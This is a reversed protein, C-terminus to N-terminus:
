NARAETARATLRLPENGEAGPLGADALGLMSAVEALFARHERPAHDRWERLYDGLNRVKGADHRNLAYLAAWHEPAQEFRQLLLNAVVENDGRLYPNGSLAPLRSRLWAATTQGEPLQRHAEGLLHAAYRALVDAYGQWSPYPAEDSWRVAMKRLVYLGAAECLAEEFWQHSRRRPDGGHAAHNAMVHCLEHGFQYAYQAWARNRASLRIRHEGAPGREFLAVPADGGHTVVIPHDFVPNPGDVLEDAVAQLLTEIEDRAASGWGEGEVRIVVGFDSSSSTWAGAQPVGALLAVTGAVVRWLARGLFRKMELGELARLM